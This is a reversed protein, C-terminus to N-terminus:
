RLFNVKKFRDIEKQIDAFRQPIVEALIWDRYEEYKRGYWYSKDQWDYVTQHTQWSTDNEENIEGTEYKRRQEEWYQLRDLAKHLIRMGEKTLRSEKALKEFCTTGFRLKVGDTYTVEIINTIWQGCHDCECGENKGVHWSNIRAIYAM